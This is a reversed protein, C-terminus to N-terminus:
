TAKNFAFIGEGVVPSTQSSQRAMWVRKTQKQCLM